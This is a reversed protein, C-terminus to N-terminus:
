NTREAAASKKPRLYPSESLERVDPRQRQGYTLCWRIFDQRTPAVFLFFFRQWSDILPSNRANISGREM